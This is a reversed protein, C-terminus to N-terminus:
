YAIKKKIARRRTNIRHKKRKELKKNQGNTNILTAKRIVTLALTIQQNVHRETTKISLNEAVM